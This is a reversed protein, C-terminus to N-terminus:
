EGKRFTLELGVAGRIPVQEKADEGQLHVEDAVTPFPTAAVAAPIGPGIVQKGPV